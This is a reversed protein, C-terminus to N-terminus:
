HIIILYKKKTISNRLYKIQTIKKKFFYKVISMDHSALDWLSSVDERIPGYNKRNFEVYKIKGLFNNNNM